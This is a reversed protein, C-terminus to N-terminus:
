WWVVGADDEGRGSRGPRDVVAPLDVMFAIWWLGVVPSPGGAGRRTTETGDRKACSARRTRGGRVEDKKTDM